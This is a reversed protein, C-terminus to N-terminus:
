GRGHPSTPLHGEVILLMHSLGTLMSVDNAIPKCRDGMDLVVKFPFHLESVTLEGIGM